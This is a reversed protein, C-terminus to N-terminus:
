DITLLIVGSGANILYGNDRGPTQVSLYRRISARGYGCLKLYRWWSNFKVVPNLKRFHTSLTINQLSVGGLHPLMMFRSEYKGAGNALGWLGLFLKSLVLHRHKPQQIMGWIDITEVISFNQQMLFRSFSVGFSHQKHPKWSFDYSLGEGSRVSTEVECCCHFLYLTVCVQEHM